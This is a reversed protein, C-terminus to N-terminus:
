IGPRLDRSYRYRYEPHIRAHRIFEQYHIRCVNTEAVLNGTGADWVRIYIGAQNYIGRENKQHKAACESCAMYVPPLSFELPSDSAMVQGTAPATVAQPPETRRPRVPAPPKKIDRLLMETFRRVTEGANPYEDLDEEPTNPIHAVPDRRSSGRGTFPSQPAAAPRGRSPINQPRTPRPRGDPDLQGPRPVGPGRRPDDPGAFPDGRMPRGARPDDPGSLPRGIPIRRM